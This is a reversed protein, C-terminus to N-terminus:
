HFCKSFRIINLSTIALLKTDQKKSERHLHFRSTFHLINCSMTSQRVLESCRIVTPCVNIDAVILLLFLAHGDCVVPRSCQNCDASVCASVSAAAFVVALLAVYFAM